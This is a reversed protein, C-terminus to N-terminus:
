AFGLSSGEFLQLLGQLVKVEADDVFLPGFHRGIKEKLVQDVDDEPKELVELGLL